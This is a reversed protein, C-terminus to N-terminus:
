DGNYSRGFTLVRSCMARLLRNCKGTPIGQESHGRAQQSHSHSGKSPHNLFLLRFLASANVIWLCPQLITM